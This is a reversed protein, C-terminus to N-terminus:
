RLDEETWPGLRLGWSGGLRRAWADRHRSSAILLPLRLLARGVDPWWAGVPTYRPHVEALTANGRGYQVSRRVRDRLGGRMTRLVRADPTFAWDVGTRQARFGLDVDQGTLFREDFGDLMSFASRRIAFNNGPVLVYPAWRTAETPWARVHDHGPEDPARDLSAGISLEHEDLTRLHAALWGPGVEDDADCFILSHGAAKDAGRNRAPGAGRRESADVVRLDLGTASAIERARAATADTSGNDAVVVEVDDIDDQAAIARLQREIVEAGDRVPIIVSTAPPRHAETM